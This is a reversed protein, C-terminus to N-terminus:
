FQIPDECLIPNMKLPYRIRDKNIKDFFEICPLSGDDPRLVTGFYRKMFALLAVGSYEIKHHEWGPNLLTESRGCPTSLILFEDPSLNNVINQMMIERHLIHEITDFSIIADFTGFNWKTVDGPMYKLNGRKYNNSAYSCAKQDDDVGIVFSGTLKEAIM